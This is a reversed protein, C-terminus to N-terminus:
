YGTGSSPASGSPNSGGAGNVNVDVRNPISPTNSRRVAPIAYALIIVGLIVAIIVGIVFGTGSGSSEVPQNTTQREIITAM